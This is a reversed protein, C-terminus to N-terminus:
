KGAGPRGLACRLGEIVGGDEQRIRICAECGVTHQTIKVLFANWGENLVATAKDQGPTLGRVANNAHVLKGNVWVKIGDDAGMDLRVTQKAPAYVNSRIYVVCHNGGVVSSLDVKWALSPDSPRPAPKWTVKADPNEPGFAIDFLQRCEKGKQRYPGAVEWATIYGVYRDMADLAKAAEAKTVANVSNAKLRSLAARAETPHSSALSAAIRAAAMEAEPRIAADEELKVALALARLHPIKALHMLGTKKASPTTSNLLAIECATLREDVPRDEALGIMRWLGRIAIPDSKLRGFAVLDASMDLGGFDAIARVAWARSEGGERLDKRLADAAQEGGIRALMRQFARRAPSDKRGMAAIIPAVLDQPAASRGAGAALAREFAALEEDSEAKAVLPILQRSVNGDALVALSRAAALRSAPDPGAAMKLLAPVAGAERRRGLADALERQVPPSATALEAVIAERVGEGRLRALALRAADREPGKATAAREALLPVVSPDGVTGLAGLAAVRVDGDKSSALRAIKAVLPEPLREGGLRLAHLVPVHTEVRDESLEGAILTAETGGDLEWFLSLAALHAARDNTGLLMSASGSSTSRYLAVRIHEPLEKRTEYPELIRYIEMATKSSDESEGDGCRLIADFIAKRLPRPAKPLAQGLHKAAEQGGIKGLARAAAEAM